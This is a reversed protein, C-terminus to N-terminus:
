NKVQASAAGKRKRGQKACIGEKVAEALQIFKPVPLKSSRPRGGRKRPRGRYKPIPCGKPINSNQSVVEETPGYM